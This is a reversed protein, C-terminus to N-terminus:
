FKRGVEPRNMGRFNYCRFVRFKRIKVGEREIDLLPLEEVTEFADWLDPKFWGVYIADKGVLGPNVEPDLSRDEWLDFQSHRKPNQWLYSGMYYTAPQGHVYFAMQSTAQYDECLVFTGPGMREREESVFAGLEEWGRLKVTPDLQRVSLEKGFWPKSINGEAWAILPYTVSFDHAVPMMLLGFAVAPYFWARWPRWLEKDRLRTSLYWAVLIMLTFYAPAPWNLQAKARLNVLTTMVFFPLAIWLLFWARRGEESAEDERRVRRAYLAAAVMMVFLPPGVVAVQGALFELVRAPAALLGGGETEAATGTQKTVHWLSVWGNRANWVIIPITFLLAIALASVWGEWAKLDRRGRPGDMWLALGAIPLWLFMAYKALFGVGVVLGVLPWAWRRGDFVILALLYTALAWCFFFPPDITMLLSGAVFMPVIHNLLVAGLALRDSKFLKLTLLYTVVSTGVGLVLAPLRVAWMVDGFVACSARILYAVLPGKSYYSWDLRRSWDWYHAEDGSLDIPCNPDRLYQLHSIFGYALLVIAIIRCVKPTLWAVRWVPRPTVHIQESVPASIAVARAEM